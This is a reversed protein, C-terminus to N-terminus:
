NKFFEKMLHTIGELENRNFDPTQYDKFIKQTMGNQCGPISYKDFHNILFKTITKSDELNSDMIEQYTLGERWTIVNPCNNFWADGFILSKKGMIAAERAITGTITSVFNSNKILKFNDISTDVLYTSSLNSVLEYFLPSRGLLGKKLIFQSPHEKIIININEPLIKRLNTIAIIQDHFIGGDPNTTREPECHLAFYVYEKSLNVQKKNKKYSLNLNNIRQRKIKRRILFNLKYPNIFFYSNNINKKFYFLNLKLRQLIIQFNKKFNSVKLLSDKKTKFKEYDPLYNENARLSDIKSVHSTLDNSYIKQVVRGYNIKREINTLDNLNKMFLLPTVGGYDNFRGIKLNLFSCIELLLYQAHSHANEAMILYEPKNKNVEKLIFLALKFFVCERDLRNFQGFFDLRDMMKLCRDKARLFNDSFFFEQYEGKYDIKELNEPYHVLDNMSHVYSGFYKRAREYLRDDGLWFVPIAIDEKYLNIAAEFWATNETM